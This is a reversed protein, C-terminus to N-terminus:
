MLHQKRKRVEIARSSAVATVVATATVVEYLLEDEDMENLKQNVSLPWYVVSVKSSNRHKTACTCPM